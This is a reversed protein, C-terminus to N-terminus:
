RRLLSRAICYYCATVWRDVGGDDVVVVIIAFWAVECADVVEVGVGVM